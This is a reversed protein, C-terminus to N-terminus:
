AGESICCKKTKNDPALVILASLKGVRSSAVHLQGDSFCSNELNLCYSSSKSQSKNITMAFAVRIPFQIRKFELPMDSPIMLIRPILVEEDKFKGKLITAHIVLRTVNCLKPKSLNRLMMLVSGVKLQLNHPPSGPMDLSNLFESPYNTFENKNTVCNISKYSHLTGVIQNQIVFNLDDVDKNKAALIAQESLWKPNKYNDITRSCKTLSSM